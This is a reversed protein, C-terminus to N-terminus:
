LRVEQINTDSHNPDFVEDAWFLTILDTTGVNEIAHTYGVPIDVVKLNEGSVPLEILHDGQIQRFRIIGQGAVVIFKEAKTHHWHNGRTVGPKTRSIFIQGFQRSKLLEALWGRHDHKMELQYGFGDEPLYSLYTAYLFRSLEDGFDPLLLTTRSARFAKIRDALEQLTITFTRPVACYGDAQKNCCGDLALIFESVVDDIYALELRQSPNNIQISLDHVINYCFTAVVSNYNPRCWKGFVNPLRYVLAQGDNDRAWEFVVMEAQRKSVGYPNNLVAQTSSTMLVPIKRHQQKLADLVQETFCKNGIIFEAEHQPRNVGALHFVFDAQSLFSELNTPNNSLDYGLVKVDANSKLHEILNKGIFGDAGTVVVTKM